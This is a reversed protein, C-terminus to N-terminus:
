SIELRIFHKDYLDFLQMSYHKYKKNISGHTNNWYIIIRYLQNINLSMLKDWRSYDIEIQSSSSTLSM